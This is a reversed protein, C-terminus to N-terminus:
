KFQLFTIRKGYKRRLLQRQKSMRQVHMEAKLRRNEENLDYNPFIINEEVLQFSLQDIADVIVLDIVRELLPAIGELIIKSRYDQLKKVEEESIEQFMSLEQAKLEDETLNM